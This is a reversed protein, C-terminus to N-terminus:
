VKEAKNIKECALCINALFTPLDYTEEAILKIAQAIKVSGSSFLVAKFYGLLCNRVMVIDDKTM